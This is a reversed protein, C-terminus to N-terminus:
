PEEEFEDVRMARMRPQHELRTRDGIALRRRKQRDGIEQAAVKADVIAVIGAADAGLHHAGHESEIRRELVRHGRDHPQEVGEPSLIREEGEIGPLAALAREVADLAEEQTLTADLRQQEHELVKV